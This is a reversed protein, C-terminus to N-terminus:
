LSIEVVDSIPCRLEVCIRGIVDLTVIENKGMKTMTAKSLGTAKTLESKTLRKDVLTKWLPDYSIAYNPTM